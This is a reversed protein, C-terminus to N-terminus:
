YILDFACELAATTRIETVSLGRSPDRLSTAAKREHHVSLRNAGAPRSESSCMPGAASYGVDNQALRYTM